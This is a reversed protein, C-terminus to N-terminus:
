VKTSGGPEENSSELKALKGNITCNGVGTNRFACFDVLLWSLTTKYAFKEIWRNMAYYAIPIATIFAIAVWKVFDRNLLIMVESVNAGSVKRVGIEKTRREIVFLSLGFLGLIAISIALIM